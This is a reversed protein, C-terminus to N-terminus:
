RRSDPSRDRSRTTGAPAVPQTPPVPNAPVFSGPGTAPAFYSFGSTAGSHGSHGTLNDWAQPFSLGATDNELIALRLDILEQKKSERKDIQKKLKALQEELAKVQEQRKKQDHDFQASLYSAITSKAKKIDSADASESRVTKLAENLTKRAEDFKKRTEPTVNGDITEIRFAGDEVVFFEQPGGNVTTAIGAASAPFQGWGSITHGPGSVIGSLGGSRPSSAVAPDIPTAVEVDLASSSSTQAIALYGPDEKEYQKELLNSPKGRPL